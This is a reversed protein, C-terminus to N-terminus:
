LLDHYTYYLAFNNPAGLSTLKMEGRLVKDRSPSPVCLSSFLNVLARSAARCAMGQVSSTTRIIMTGTGGGGSAGTAEANLGSPASLAVPAPVSDDGALPASLSRRPPEAPMGRARSQALNVSASPSTLLGLLQRRGDCAQLQDAISIRRHATRPNASASSSECKSIIWECNARFRSEACLINAIIECSLQQLVGAENSLLSSLVTVVGDDYLRDHVRDLENCTLINMTYLSNLTFTRFDKGMTEARSMMRNSSTHEFVPMPHSIAKESSSYRHPQVSRFRPVCRQDKMMHIFRLSNSTYKAKTVVFDRFNKSESLAFNLYEESYAAYWYNSSQIISQMNTNAMELIVVKPVDVYMLILCLIDPPLHLFHVRYIVKAAEVIQEKGPGGIPTMAALQGTLKGVGAHLGNIRAETAAHMQQSDSIKKRMDLLWAPLHSDKQPNM